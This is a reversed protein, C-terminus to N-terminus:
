NGLAKLTAALGRLRTADPGKASAAARELEDALKTRLGRDSGTIASEVAKARDAALVNSRTLQDLYARAVTPTAPWSVKPQQQANFVPQKVELAAALENQTLQESPKLQLVDLGRAMEAGYIHGNYWYASWHGATFLRKADVPGRDFYAIEFPKSSDTFDFVSIGGQYWAQVMIDRGPVPVLSGNHAVCNEQETQAAPLKYYSRFQLKRDVIDFIANAGWEPQDTVRCRPRTGGGWEDTFIVKTGDNNFTASHWYAFNKDLVADLRVPKVPNSIDLLIGNGSCAGAALGVEPFVTIDHCQNTESTRQTGPGHDGGRWLGGIAGTKEDAFIRPRAVVRAKDPAALPIQIVDISFLATEPNEEPKGTSCGDLEDASRPTGTGSGYVYINATDKPDVLLTHTHSGRCTQVAAVQKPKQLDSIDFIRVGRFREPSVTEKVGQTGCDIRGRTQEVSMILLNGHVSVDGQGGPCLISAILKPDTAKSVDYINFGSFNGIFLHQGKFALDSNAFDLSSRPREPKATEEAAPKEGQKDTAAPKEAETPEGTPQAPDFFGPPKPLNALLEMNKAAVGADKLGPKLGVRPDNAPREQASGNALLLALVGAVCLGRSCVANM